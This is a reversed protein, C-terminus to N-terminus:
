TIVGRLVFRLYSEACALLARARGYGREQVRSVSKLTLFFDIRM